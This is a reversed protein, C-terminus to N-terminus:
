DCLESIASQGTTTQGAFARATITLGVIHVILFAAAVALLWGTEDRAKPRATLRTRAPKGAAIM